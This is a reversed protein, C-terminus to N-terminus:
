SVLGIISDIRNENLVKSLESRPFRPSGRPIRRTFERSKLPLIDGCPRLLPLTPSFLLEKPPRPVVYKRTYDLWDDPCYVTLLPHHFDKLSTMRSFHDELVLQHEVTVGFVKEVLLRTNLGPQKVQPASSMWTMANQLIERRWLSINRENLAWRLDRGSTLRLVAQSLETLIPCGNYQYYMSLAKSRLLSMRKADGLNIYRGSSWGLTLIAGIPECVNILELPDFILGCFSSEELPVEVMKITFGLDEFFTPGYDRKSNATFLGDDGEVIAVVHTAGHYFAAFLGVMLNAFGNGLSTCMEGSMRTAEVFVTFWKFKCVNVGLLADVHDHFDTPLDKTMYMYLIFECELMTAADFHTEFSTYDSSKPKAGLVGFREQIYAPRDPVPVKKIFAENKFVEEEIAKFVPGVLVKFEDSRSNIARLTKAQAALYEEKGFSSVGRHRRNPGDSGLKAWVARLEIKRWEPYPREALWTEFEVDTIRSLPTLNRKCWNRVFRRFRRRLRRQPTPPQSIFRKKTGEWMNRADQTDPHPVACYPSTPGLDVAMPVRYNPDRADVRRPRAATNPKTIVVPIAIGEEGTRHGYAVM